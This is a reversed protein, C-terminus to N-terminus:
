GALDIMQSRANPIDTEGKVAKWFNSFGEIANWAMSRRSSETTPDFDTKVDIGMIREYKKVTAQSHVLHVIKWGMYKAVFMMGVASEWSDATGRFREFSNQVFAVLEADTFDKVPKTPRKLAPLPKKAM